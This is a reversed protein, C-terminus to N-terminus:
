DLLTNEFSLQDGVQFEDLREPVIELVYQAAAQPILISRWAKALKVDVVIGQANIWIVGLDMFVFFMHIGSDARSERSQVLLLGEEPDIHDTFM